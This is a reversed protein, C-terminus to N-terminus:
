DANFRQLFAAIREANAGLDSLGVRSTSRLDVRSGDNDARIRIAVDDKFGFWFTTATAEILSASRDANAIEWGLDEAVTLAKAFSAAPDLDTRATRIHPYAAAQHEATAESYELPNAHEGRADVLVAFQPPDNRDTSVDHIPPVTTALRYQFGMIGLTVVSAAIGIGIPLAAASRGARLAFVLVAIGLVLVAAAVFTATFMFQFGTEFRWLGFRSGLAGVPMAALAILGVGLVVQALRDYGMTTM